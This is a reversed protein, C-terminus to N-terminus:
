DLEVIYVVVKGHIVLNSNNTSTIYDFFSDDNSDPRFILQDDNRYFRKVSYDGNDSYVVIDGQKIQHIDIPKVAILSCDPIIRNMSEGNVRTIFIDRQGAHKGMVSDPLEITDADTVADVHDPVGASIPTDFHRYRSVSVKLSDQNEEELIYSKPIRFYDSIKQIPGMRPTAKELVWKGVTSESVEAIKALETQSIGKEKLLRKINDAVVKEIEKM